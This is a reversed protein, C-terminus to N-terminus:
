KEDDRMISDMLERMGYNVDSDDETTEYRSYCLRLVDWAHAKDSFEKFRAISEEITYSERDFVYPERSDGNEHEGSAEGWLLQSINAILTGWDELGEKEIMEIREWTGTSSDFVQQKFSMTDVGTRSEM